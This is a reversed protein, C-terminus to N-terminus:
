ILTDIQNGANDAPTASAANEELAATLGPATALGSQTNLPSAVSNAVTTNALTSLGPVGAANNGALTAGLITNNTDILNTNANGLLNNQPNLPNNPNLPSNPNLLNNQNNLGLPNNPNFLNSQNLQNNTNLPNNQKLPNLPDNIAASDSFGLQQRVSLIQQQLQQVNQTYRALLEQAQALQQSYDEFQAQMQQQRQAESTVRNEELSEQANQVIAPNVAAVGVPAPIPSLAM